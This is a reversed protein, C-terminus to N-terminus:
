KELHPLSITFFKFASVIEKLLTVQTTRSFCSYFPLCSVSLARFVGLDTTEASELGAGSRVIGALPWREWGEGERGPLLGTPRPRRLGRREAGPLGRCM